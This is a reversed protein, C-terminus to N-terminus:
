SVSEGMTGLEAVRRVHRADQDPKTNLFTNILKLAKELNLSRAALCIVNAHNHKRVVTAMKVTNVTAARIHSFRNLAMCIGEGTGCLAIGIDNETVVRALCFGVRPYDDGQEFDPSLDILNSPINQSKLAKFLENKIKFGAHDCCIFLAM